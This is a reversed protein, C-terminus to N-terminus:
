IRTDFHITRGYLRKRQNMKLAAIGSKSIWLASFFALQLVAYDM